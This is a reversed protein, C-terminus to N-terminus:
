SIRLPERVKGGFGEGEIVKMARAQFHVQKDAASNDLHEVFTELDDPTLKEFENLIMVHGSGASADYAEGDNVRYFSTKRYGENDTAGVTGILELDSGQFVGADYFTADDKLGAQKWLESESRVRTTYELSKLLHPKETQYCAFYNKGGEGATLPESSDEVSGSTEPGAIIRYVAGNSAAKFYVMDRIHEETYWQEWIKEDITPKSFVQFLYPQPM